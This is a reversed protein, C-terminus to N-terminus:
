PIPILSRIVASRPQFRVVFLRIHEERSMMNVLEFVEAVSCKRWDCGQTPFELVGYNSKWMIMM